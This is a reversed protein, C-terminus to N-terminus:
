VFEDILGSIQRPLQEAAILAENDQFTQLALKLSIKRTDAQGSPAQQNSSRAFQYVKEDSGSEKVNVRSTKSSLVEGDIIRETRANSPNQQASGNGTSSRRQAEDQQRQKAQEVSTTSDYQQIFGSLAIGM